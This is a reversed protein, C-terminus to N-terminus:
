LVNSDTLFFFVLVNAKTLLFFFYCVGGMEM